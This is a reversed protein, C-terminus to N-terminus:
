LNTTYAQIKSRTDIYNLFDFDINWFAKSIYIFNIYKYSYLVYTIGILYKMKGTEM